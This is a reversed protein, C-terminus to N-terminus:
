NQLKWESPVLMIPPNFFRYLLYLLYLLNQPQDGESTAFPLHHLPSKQNSHRIMKPLDITSEKAIFGRKLGCTINVVNKSSILKIWLYPRQEPFDTIDIKLAPFSDPLQKGTPLRQKFPKHIVHLSQAIVIPRQRTLIVKM